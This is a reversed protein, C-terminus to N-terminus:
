LHAVMGNYVHSVPVPTDMEKMALYVHAYTAVMMTLVHPMVVATTQVVSANMSM